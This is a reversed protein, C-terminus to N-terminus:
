RPPRPAAHHCDQLGVAQVYADGALAHAGRQADGELGPLAPAYQAGVAGALGRQQVGQGAQARGLAALQAQVALGQRADPPPRQRPPQPQHGLVAVVGKGGRHQLRRQDATVRPEPRPFPFAPLVGRQRLGRQGVHPEGAQRVPRHVREGAALASAERQRGQEGLVRLDRQEVFRAVVEVEM